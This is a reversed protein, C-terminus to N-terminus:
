PDCIEIIWKEDVNILAMWQEGCSSSLQFIPVIKLCKWYTMWCTSLSTFSKGSMDVPPHFTVSWGLAKYTLPKCLRFCQGWWAIRIEYPRIAIWDHLRLCLYFNWGAGVFIFTTDYKFSSLDPYWITSVFQFNSQQGNCMSSFDLM